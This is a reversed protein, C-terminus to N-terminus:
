KIKLYKDIIELCKDWDYPEYGREKYSFKYFKILQKKLWRKFIIKLM